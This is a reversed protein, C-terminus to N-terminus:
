HLTARLEAPSAGRCVPDVESRSPKDVQEVDSSAVHSPAPAATAEAHSVRQVEAVSEIEGVGKGSSSGFEEVEWPSRMASRKMMLPEDDEM